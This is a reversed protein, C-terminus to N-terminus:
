KKPEPTAPRKAPAVQPAVTPNIKPTGASKPQNELTYEFATRSPVFTFRESESAPKADKKGVMSDLVQFLSTVQVKTNKALDPQQKQARDILTQLDKQDFFFPVYQKGEQELTLLGQDKDKGGTAFFVPVSPLQEAPKGQSTLITRASDISSKSPVIQFAVKKNTENQKIVQYADNMSRIIIRAKSGVDPNSQKIRTLMGKADDPNLFFLLLQDPQAAANAPKNPLSGLLPNGKDDTITFVPIGNLRELAQAETLAYAVQPIAIIASAIAISAFKTISKM